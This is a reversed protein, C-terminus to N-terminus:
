LLLYYGSCFAKIYVEFITRLDCGEQWYDM